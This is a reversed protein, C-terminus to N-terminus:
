ATKGGEKNKKELVVFSKQKSLKRCEGIKVEDGEEAEICSPNHAQIHSSRREYREFKPAKEAYSKEIVVTKEMKNSVVHGEFVRGRVKLNGHYPCNKDQCEEEPPKVTSDIM